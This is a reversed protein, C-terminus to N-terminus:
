RCGCGDGTGEGPVASGAPLTLRMRIEDLGPLAEDVKDSAMAPRSRSRVGAALRLRRGVQAAVRPTIKVAQEM